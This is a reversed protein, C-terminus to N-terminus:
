SEIMYDYWITLGDDSYAHVHLWFERTCFEFTVVSPGHYIPEPFDIPQAVTRNLNPSIGGVQYMLIVFENGYAPYESNLDSGYDITITLTVKAPKGINVVLRDEGDGWGGGPEWPMEPVYIKGSTTTVEPQKSAIDELKGMVTSPGSTSTGMEDLFTDLKGDITLLRDWIEKIEADIRTLLALGYESDTLLGEIDAVQNKLADVETWNLTGTQSNIIDLKPKIIETLYNQIKEFPVGTEATVKVNAMTGLIFFISAISLITVFQKKSKMTDGGEEGEFLLM